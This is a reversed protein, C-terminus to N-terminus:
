NGKLYTDFFAVTRGMATGYNVVTNHNNDPYSFSEYSANGTRGSSDSVVRNARHLWNHQSPASDARFSGCFLTFSILGLCFRPQKAELGICDM